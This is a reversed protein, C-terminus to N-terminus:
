PLVLELVLGVAAGDVTATTSRLTLADPVEEDAEITFSAPAGHYRLDVTPADELDLSVMSSRQVPPDLLHLFRGRSADYRGSFAYTIDGSGDDDGQLLIWGADEDVVEAGDSLTLRLVAIDWAGALEARSVCGSLLLALPGILRAAGAPPPLATM